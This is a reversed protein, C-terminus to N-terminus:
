KRKKGLVAGAAGILALMAPAIVSADGTKPTALCSYGGVRFTPTYNKCPTCSSYRTCVNGCGWHGCPGCATYSTDCWVPRCPTYYTRDYYWDSRRCDTTKSDSYGEGNPDTVTATYKTYVYCGSYETSTTVVALETASEGCGTKTCTFTASAVSYDASWAWTPASWAHTCDTTLTTEGDGSESGTSGGDSGTNGSSSDTSGGDSGTNGSSSDTSGGGSGTSGAGSGASGGDSGTTDGSEDSNAVPAEYSLMVVQQTNDQASACKTCLGNENVSDVQTYCKTCRKKISEVPQTEGNEGEDALAPVMVLVMALALALALVRRKM